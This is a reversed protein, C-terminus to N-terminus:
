ELVGVQWASQLLLDAGKDLVLVVVAGVIAQLVECGGVDVEASALGDQGIPVPYFSL